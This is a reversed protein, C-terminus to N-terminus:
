TAYPAHAPIDFAGHGSLKPIGRHSKYGVGNGVWKVSGSGPDRRTDILKLPERQKSRVATWVSRVRISDPSKCCQGLPNEAVILMILVGGDGDGEGEGGGDGASENGGDGKGAGLWGAAGATKAKFRPM